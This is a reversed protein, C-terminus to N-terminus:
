PLIQGLNPYNISTVMLHTAVFCTKGMPDASRASCSSKNAGQQEIFVEREDEEKTHATSTRTNKASNTDLVPQISTQIQYQSLFRTRDNKRSASANRMTDERRDAQRSAYRKVHGENTVSEVRGREM